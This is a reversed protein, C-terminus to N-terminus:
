GNAPLCNGRGDTSHCYQHVPKELQASYGSFVTNNGSSDQRALRRMPLEPMGAPRTAEPRGYAQSPCSRFVERVATVILKGESDFSDHRLLPLIGGAPTPQLRLSRM